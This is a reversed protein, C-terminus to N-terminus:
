ICRLIVGHQLAEVKVQWWELAHCAFEWDDLDDEEGFNELNRQSDLQRKFQEFSQHYKNSFFDCEAQYQTVKTLAIMLSWDTLLAELNLYGTKQAIETILQM